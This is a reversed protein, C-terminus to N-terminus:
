NMTLSVKSLTRYADMLGRLQSEPLRVTRDVRFNEPGRYSESIVFGQERLKATLQNFIAAPQRCFKEYELTLCREPPLQNMGTEIARNTYYLQGAIQEALPRNQLDAFEPPKFSYWHAESGYFRQRATVLSQMNYYPDRRIHVFLAKDFMKSLFPINWNMFMGKMAVPKDGVSELAAIEAVFSGSDVESLESEQFLQIDADPFFRRWFYWFENPALLGQTKGLSSSFNHRRESVTLGFEKGFDFRNDTLMQQIRAGIYPAAYFRSILNSPYSFAGTSALWQLLLTTGSRACGM